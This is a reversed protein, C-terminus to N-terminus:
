VGLKEKLEKIDPDAPNIKEYESLTKEAAAINNSAIYGRINSKIMQALREMETKPQSDEYEKLVNKQYVDIVAAITPHELVIKRMEAFCAKYEGSERYRIIRDAASAPSIHLPLEAAEGAASIYESGIKAYAKFLRDIDTEESFDKVALKAKMVLLMFEAFGSYDAINKISSPPYNELAACFGNINKLCYRIAAKKNFSKNKLLLTIDARSAAAVYLLEPYGGIDGLSGFFENGIIGGGFFEGCAKVIRGFEEDSLSIDNLASLIDSRREEIIFLRGFLETKFVKKGYEDLRNYFKGANSFDTDELVCMEMHILNNVHADLCSYKYIPLTKLYDAALNLKKECSCSYIFMELVGIFNDDRALSRTGFYEDKTLIRGLKYDNFLKFFVIFKEIAEKHRGLFSLALAQACYMDADSVIVKPRYDSGLSFYEECVSLIEEYKGDGYLSGAKKSYLIVLMDSHKEKCYEIGTDLYMDAAEPEYMACADYLQSYLLGSKEGNELRKLLLEKNRKRKEKAEETDKSSTYGYHMAIDDLNKIPDGVTTLAEHIPNIFKTEPLIKTIRVATFDTFREGEKEIGIAALFNRITYSASNYKKYEGSNFFHIINSCDEFIEDADVFMYWEGQAKELTSNRAASFDKIWEFYFVNDTFREAIEVTRDSSGTDAIILESDVNELIPQLATLCRELYKEENKVIMGISLLM